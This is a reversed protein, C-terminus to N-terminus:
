APGRSKLHHTDAHVGHQLQAVRYRRPAADRGPVSRFVVHGSTRWRPQASLGVRRAGVILVFIYFTFDLLRSRWLICEM